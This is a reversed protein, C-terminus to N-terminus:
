DKKVAKYQIGDVNFGWEVITRRCERCTKKSKYGDVIAIGLLVGLFLGILISIILAVAVLMTKGKMGIICFLNGCSIVVKM